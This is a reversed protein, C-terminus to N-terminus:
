AAKLCASVWSTAYPLRSRLAALRQVGPDHGGDLPEIPIAQVVVDLPERVVRQAALQPLPRDRM